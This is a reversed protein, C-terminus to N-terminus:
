MAADYAVIYEVDSVSYVLTDQKSGKWCIRRCNPYSEVSEQQWRSKVLISVDVHKFDTNEYKLWQVKTIGLYKLITLVIKWHNKSLDSQYRSVVM